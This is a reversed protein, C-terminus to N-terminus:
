VWRMEGDKRMIHTEYIDAVGQLRSEHRERMLALGRDRDPHNFPFLIEAGLKGIIESREFGTIECFRSNAVRAVGETDIILLGEHIREAVSQFSEVNAGFLLELSSVSSNKSNIQAFKM